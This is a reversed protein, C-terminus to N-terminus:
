GGFVGPFLVSIGYLLSLIVIVGVIISSLINQWLKNKYKGV